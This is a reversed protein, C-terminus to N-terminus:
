PCSEGARLPLVRFCPAAATGRAPFTLRPGSPIERGAEDRLTLTLLRSQEQLHERPIEFLLFRGTLQMRDVAGDAYHLDLQRYRGSAPGFLLVTDETPHLHVALVEDKDYGKPLCRRVSRAQDGVELWACTGEYRTPATWIVAQGSATEISVASRKESEIADAPPATAESCCTEERTVVSGDEALAVVASIEHGPARQARTFRYHFFGNAIPESVWSVPPRVVGGDAFHLEVAAVYRSSAHVAIADFSSPEPPTAPNGRLVEGLWSVSLPTTGLKDCGGGGGDGAWLYCFGGSRTPAVWVTRKEGTATTTELKRAEGAIAQPDMGPPAGVSLSEFLEVARPPAKEAGFFDIGPIGLGLAPAAVLAAAVLVAVIVVLRTRRPGPERDVPTAAVASVVTDFRGEAHDILRRREASSVPDAQRLLEFAEPTASM